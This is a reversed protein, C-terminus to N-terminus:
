LKLLWGHYLIKSGGKWEWNIMRKIWVKCTKTICNLTKFHPQNWRWEGNHSIARIYAVSKWSRWCLFWCREKRENVKPYLHIENICTVRSHDEVYFDVDKGEWKSQSIFSNWKYLCGKQTSQKPTSTTAHIDVQPFSILLLHQQLQWKSQSHYDEKVYRSTQWIKLFPCFWVILWRFYKVCPLDSNFLARTKVCWDERVQSYHSSIHAM